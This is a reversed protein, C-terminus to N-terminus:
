LICVEKANKWKDFKKRVLIGLEQSGIGGSTSFFVCYKCFAGQEIESYALWNYEMFWKHQFKLKLKKDKYKEPVPFKYTNSPYWLSNITDLIDINQTGKVFNAIDMKHEMSPQDVHMYESTNEKSEINQANQSTGAQEECKNGTTKSEWNREKRKFFGTLTSQHM